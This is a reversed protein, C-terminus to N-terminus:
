MRYQFPLMNFCIGHTLSRKFTVDTLTSYFLAEYHKFVLFDGARSRHVGASLCQDAERDESRPPGHRQHRRSRERTQRAAVRRHRLLLDGAERRRGCSCDSSLNARRESCQVRTRNGQPRIATNPMLLYICISRSNLLFIELWFARYM